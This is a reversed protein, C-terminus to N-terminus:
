SIFPLDPSPLLFSPFFLPFAPSWPQTLPTTMSTMNSSNPTQGIFLSTCPLVRKREVGYIKKPKVM